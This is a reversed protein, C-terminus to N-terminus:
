VGAGAGILTDYTLRKGVIGCIALDFRGADNNTRENFRFAQEDLYRFLHFPEVAVCTGKISRKLLSWYNELGNTYVTGDVYAEAHDIVNHAFERSLGKYSFHADTNVTSGLEIHDRVKPQMHGKKRGGLVLTRVRSQGKETNRELLGMVAVKGAYSRSQTIGMRKRKAISMNRAKGGIYTEDVEVEGGLKGGGSHGDQMALRIRQLMFWATKQTVGVARAIEHSSVGNKCNAIMWVTPLWKDLGLPSDEFITGTKLTFKRKPHRTKCEWGNRGSDFYVTKSGCTPCTVGDPWRRAVMYERCDAPDSFYRAAEILTKPPKM